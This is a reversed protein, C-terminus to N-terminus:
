EPSANRKRLTEYAQRFLEVLMEADKADLNRDARLHLAVAEPTSEPERQHRKLSGEPTLEDLSVGLWQALKLLNDRGPSYDGREVRSLTAASLDADSAADRISQGKALRRSRVRHALAAPDIPM